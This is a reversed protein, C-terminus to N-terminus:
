NISRCSTNALEILEPIDEYTIKRIKKDIEMASCNYYIKKLQRIVSRHEDSLLSSPKKIKFIKDNSKVYYDFTMYDAKDTVFTYGNDNVWHSILLSSEGSLIRTGLKANTGGSSKYSFKEYTISGLKISDIEILRKKEKRGELKYKIKNSHHLTDKKYILIECDIQAGSSLYIIAPQYIDSALNGALGSQGFGNLTALGVFIVILTKIVNNQM